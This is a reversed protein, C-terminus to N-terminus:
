LNLSSSWRQCAAIYAEGVSNVAGSEDFLQLNYTGGEMNENFWSFSSVVPRGDDTTTAIVRDMLDDIFSALGNPLQDTSPCAHDPQDIAPYKQNPGNPICIVDGGGACNLMGVENVIAGMINPFEEMIEKTQDLKSQFDDYGGNTAPQCDSAYFHWGIHTPCGCSMHNCNTCAAQVFSKVWDLNVAVLPTSLYEYGKSAIIKATDRWMGMIEDVCENDDFLTPLPQPNACSGVGWFGCGTAHAYQWCNCHGNSLPNALVDDLHAAPCGAQEEAATCPATCKGFMNGM